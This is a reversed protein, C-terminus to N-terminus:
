SDNSLGLIICYKNCNHEKLFNIIGETSLNGACFNLQEDNSDFLETTAIEPDYLHNASGQIDPVMFQNNILLIAFLRQGKQIKKFKKQVVVFTLLIVM